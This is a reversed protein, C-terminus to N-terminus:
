LMMLFFEIVSKQVAIQGPGSKQRRNKCFLAFVFDGAHHLATPEFVRDSSVKVPAHIQENENGRNGRLRQRGAHQSGEGAIASTSRMSRVLSKSAWTRASLSARLTAVECTGAGAGAGAWCLAGDYVVEINELALELARSLLPM